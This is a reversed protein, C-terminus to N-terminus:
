IVLLINYIVLITALGMAGPLFSTTQNYTYSLTIIIMNYLLYTQSWNVIDFPVYCITFLLSAILGSFLIILLEKNKVILRDTICKYFLSIGLAFVPGYALLMLFNGAYYTHFTQYDVTFILGHIFFHNLVIIIAFLILSLIYFLFSDKLNKKIRNYHLAILDYDYIFLICGIFNFLFTYTITSNQVYKDIFPFLFPISLLLVVSVITRKLSLTSLTIQM